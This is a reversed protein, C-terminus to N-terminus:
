RKTISYVTGYCGPRRVCLTQLAVRPPLHSCTLLALATIVDTLREVASQAVLSVPISLLALALMVLAFRQILRAQAHPLPDDLSELALWRGIPLKM